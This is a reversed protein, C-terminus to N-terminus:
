RTRTTLTKESKVVETVVRVSMMMNKELKGHNICISFYMGDDVYCLM